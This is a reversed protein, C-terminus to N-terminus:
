KKLLKLVAPEIMGYEYDPDAGFRLIIEALFNVLYPEDKQQVAPIAKEIYGALQGVLTSHYKGVMSRGSGHQEYAKWAPDYRLAFEHVKDFLDRLVDEAPRDPFESELEKMLNQWDELMVGAALYDKSPFYNYFTGLGIGLREAILRITLADYGNALLEKRAEEIARERIHEIIKPM